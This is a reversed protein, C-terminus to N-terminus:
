KSRANKNKLNTSRRTLTLRMREQLLALEDRKELLLQRAEESWETPLSIEAHPAINLCRKGDKLTVTATGPVEARLSGGTLVIVGFAVALLWTTGRVAGTRQSRSM